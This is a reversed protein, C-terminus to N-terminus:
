QHIDNTRREYLVQTCMLQNVTLFPLRVVISMVALGPSRGSLDLFNLVNLTVSM